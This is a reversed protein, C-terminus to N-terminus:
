AQNQELRRNIGDLMRGAIANPTFQSRRSQLWRDVELAVAVGLAIWIVRKLVFTILM